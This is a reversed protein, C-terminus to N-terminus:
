RNKSPTVINHRTSSNGHSAMRIRTAKTIANGRQSQKSTPCNAKLLPSTTPHGTSPITSAKSFATAKKLAYQKQLKNLPQSLMMPEVAAKGRGFENMIKTSPNYYGNTSNHYDGKHAELHERRTLFQINRADGAKSNHGDVSKMHHGQYGKARGKLIIERQEKQSLDRTGEGGLVRNRENKWAVAVAKRREYNINNM